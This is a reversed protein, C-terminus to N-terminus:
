YKNPGGDDTPGSVLLEQSAERAKEAVDPRTDGELKELETAVAVVTGNHGGTKAAFGIDKLEEIMEIPGTGTVAEVAMKNVVVRAADELKRAADPDDDMLDASMNNELADVTVKGAEPTNSKEEVNESDAEAKKVATSQADKMAAQLISPFTMGCLISFFLLRLKEDLRCNALLFVSIGAAAGGLAFATYWELAHDVKVLGSYVMLRLMLGGLCGGGVVLVLPAIDKIPLINKVKSLRSEVTQSQDTQDTM